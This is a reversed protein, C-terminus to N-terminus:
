DPMEPELGHLAVLQEVLDETGRAAVDLDGVPDYFADIGQLAYAINLWGSALVELDYGGEMVFVVRGECLEGAMRIAERALWDYGQLDLQLMALPDAWHADFGVSVLILDPRFRRAAPRVVREYILRFGDNGVGARLPMNLTTGRGEGAGTDPLAGTGPYFPYQHTSVFLVSPDEYFIEQTGNGHHVDYDLILVRRVAPYRRQAHRAAIAVNNFLCFGMARRPTAHHGPPRIIAMANDADGSLVADVAAMAGGASLRAIDFSEPRVYTDPDLSGMGIEAARRVREVLHETHALLLGEVEAPRPEVRMLRRSMGAEDLVRWVAEVRAANEPHGELTHRRYDTHTVYATTTM